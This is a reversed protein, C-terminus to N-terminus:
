EIRVERARDWTSSTMKFEVDLPTKIHPIHTMLYKVEEFIRNKQAILARPVSFVIEDHIPVVLRIDDNWENKFHNDLAVLARKTIGAETGQILYNLGTYAKEVSVYLKRNFPTTVYGKEKVTKSVTTTLNAIEPYLKCYMEYGPKAQPITLNLADAFQPLGAGFALGFHGNKAAGYLKKSHKKDIFQMEKPLHPGYFIRAAEIHPHGGARVIEQMAHCQSVEIILMLQLGVYDAFCMLCDNRVKFCRRAPVPYPNKEVEEKAVNMLNPNECALRGTKAHNTKINPHLKYDENAHELYGRIIAVGKVYSRQKFILEIVPHSDAMKRLKLLADKGTSPKKDDTYEMVPLQLRQYLLRSVQETSNLNIYEGFMTFTDKQVQELEDELWKLMRNTEPICLDIGYAQMREAVPILAIENLYDELFSEKQMLPWWLRFLLMTRFGDMYQYHTMLDKPVNQYGGYAKAAIRVDVDQQRDVRGLEWALYDLAHSPALNRFIQSMIMTDHWETNEAIEIGACKTFALEFKLNHAVKGITDDLFFDQLKKWNYERENKPGDLRCVEVNGEEDAICYSFIKDNKYPNLGTTEYDFAMYQKVAM